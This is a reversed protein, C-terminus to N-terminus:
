AAISSRSGGRRGALTGRVVEVAVYAASGAVSAMATLMEGRGTGELDGRYVKDLSM